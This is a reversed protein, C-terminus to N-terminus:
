VNTGADSRAQSLCVCPPFPSWPNWSIIKSELDFPIEFGAKDMTWIETSSFNLTDCLHLFGYNGTKNRTTNQLNPSLPKSMMWRDGGSKNVSKIGLISFFHYSDLCNWHSLNNGRSSLWWYERSQVDWCIYGLTLAHLLGLLTCLGRDAHCLNFNVAPRNSCTRSHCRKRASDVTERREGVNQKLIQEIKGPCGCGAARGVM